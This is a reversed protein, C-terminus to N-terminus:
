YTTKQFERIKKQQKLYFFLVISFVLLAVGISESPKVGAQPLFAVLGMAIAVGFGSYFWNDKIKALVMSGIFVVSVVIESWHLEEM